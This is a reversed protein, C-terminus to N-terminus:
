EEVVEVGNAAAYWHEAQARPLFQMGADIEIVRADDLTLRFARPVRCKVDDKKKRPKVDPDPDAPPRADGKDATAKEAAAKDAAEKAERAKVADAAAQKEAAQKDAVKKAANTM